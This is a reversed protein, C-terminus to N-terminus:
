AMDTKISPIGPDGTMMPSFSLAFDEEKNKQSDHAAVQSDM